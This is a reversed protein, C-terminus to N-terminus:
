IIKNKRRVFMFFNKHIISVQINPIAKDIPEADAADESQRLILNSLQSLTHRPIDFFPERLKLIEMSLFLRLLFAENVHRM